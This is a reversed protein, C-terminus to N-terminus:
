HLNRLHMIICVEGPKSKLLVVFKSMWSTPGEAAEIIGAELQAKTGATGKIISAQPACLCTAQCAIPM